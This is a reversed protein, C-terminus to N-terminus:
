DDNPEKYEVLKFMVNKGDKRDAANCALRSCVSVSKVICNNLMDKEYCCGNCIRYGCDEVPVLAKGLPIDIM